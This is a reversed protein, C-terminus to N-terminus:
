KKSSPNAAEMVRSFEDRYTQDDAPFLNKFTSPDTAGHQFRRKQFVPMEVGTVQRIGSAVIQGKLSYLRQHDWETLAVFPVAEAIEIVDPVAYPSFGTFGFQAAPASTRSHRCRHGFGH